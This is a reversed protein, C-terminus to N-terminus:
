NNESVYIQIRSQIVKAVEDVSKQGKYFAEAEENIITMVESNSSSIPRASDILQLILDVEEQTAKRYTYSWGDQYAISGSSGIIQPEGNEDLIPDGNEDTWYEVQVAEKAMEDLKAKRIPFGSSYLSNDQTLFSEIFQWAADKNSSKSSIGYMDNAQIATGSSGDTTPYGICTIDGGFMEYYMQIEDFDWFNANDLLVEGNQIRTPTSAQRSEWDIEDPFSNVFTLLSKFEESDFNCRGASWDIFSDENYAMLYYMITRKDTGDFLEAGPHAQVFTMLEQLTWGAETGVDSPKGVVTGVSFSSPICTLVGDYTYANLVNEVLDSRKLVSSEDLYRNLDELIGKAALQKVNLGSLDIIDPCNNKSTIDNNLNAIADNLTNENYNNYDIYQKISVHYKDSSRNFKVAAGQLYYASNLTAIVITEKQTVESGPTKKLLAIGSDGSDWDNIVALIRGDELVGMSRVGSGNIDSDLWDFLATKTQTELDYEYVTSSDNVLFDGDIGAVLTESNGGSFNAYTAGASKNDFDIETLSYGGSNGDYSYVSVYMKGDRGCGMAQLWGNGSGVSVSGRYTGDAEYLWILSDGSIYLRGQGDLALARIYSNQPDEQLRESMDKIFVLKGDADFKALNQKAEGYGAEENYTYVYVVAFMSGDEAFVIDNLNRDELSDDGWNLTARSVTNDEMSYRCISQTSNETEPDWEYSIWCLMGNAFQMDYYRANEDEVSVFEPVYVWEKVNADTEAGDGCAAFAFVMCVALAQALFRKIKETNMREKKRNEKVLVHM